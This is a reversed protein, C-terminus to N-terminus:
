KLSRSSRSGSAYRSARATSASGGTTSPSPGNPQDGVTSSVQCIRPTGAAPGSRIWARVARGGAVQQLRVPEPEHEVQAVPREAHQLPVRAQVVDVRDAQAMQVGVM